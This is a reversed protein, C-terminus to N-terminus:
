MQIDDCELQQDRVQKNELQSYFERPLKPVNLIKKDVWEYMKQLVVKRMLQM